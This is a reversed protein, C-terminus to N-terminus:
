TKMGTAFPKGIQIIQCNIGKIYLPIGMQDYRLIESADQMVYTDIM